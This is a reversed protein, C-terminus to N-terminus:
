ITLDEHSGLFDQVLFSRKVWSNNKKKKNNAKLFNFVM